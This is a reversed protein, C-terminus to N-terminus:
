AGATLAAFSAIEKRTRIGSIANGANRAYSEFTTGNKWEAADERYM